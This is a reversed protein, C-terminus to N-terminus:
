KVKGALRQGVLVSYALALAMGSLFWCMAVIPGHHAAAASDVTLCLGASTDSLLIKPFAGPLVGFAVSLLMGIVDFCSASIGVHRRLSEWVGASLTCKVGPM